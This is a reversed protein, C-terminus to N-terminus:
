DRILTTKQLEVFWKSVSVKVDIDFQADPDYNSSAASVERHLEAFLSEISELIHKGSKKTKQVNCRQPSWDPPNRESHGSLLWLDLVQIQVVVLSGDTRGARPIRSPIPTIVDRLFCKFSADARQNLQFDSKRRLFM